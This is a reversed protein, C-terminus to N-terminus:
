CKKPLSELPITVTLMSFVGLLGIIFLTLGLKIKKNM